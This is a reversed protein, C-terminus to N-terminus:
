RQVLVVKKNGVKITSKSPAVSYAMYFPKENEKKAQQAQEKLQM